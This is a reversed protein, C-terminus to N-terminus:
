RPQPAASSNVSFARADHVARRVEEVTSRLGLELSPHRDNAQAVIAAVFADGPSSTGLKPECLQWASGKGLLLGDLHAHLRREVDPDSGAASHNPGSKWQEYLFSAEDFHEELVDLLM